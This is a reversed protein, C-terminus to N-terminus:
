LEAELGELLTSSYGGYVLVFAPTSEVQTGKVATKHLRSCSIALMTESDEEGLQQGM